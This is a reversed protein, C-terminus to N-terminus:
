EDDRRGRLEKRVLMSGIWLIYVTNLAAGAISFAIVTGKASLLCGGVLLVSLRCLMILVSFVFLKKQQRLIRAILVSPVNCFMPVLWIILWRAYEGAIGWEPGFVWAFVQPAWIFLILAPLSAAGFLAATVKVFLPLLRDGNNYIEGAKQFLVQRLAVLTLSMPAELLRLGFVYAGAVAIGFFHALLLVPLGQSLANLVNQTASYLPFERYEVALDAIRRWTLSRALSRRDVHFVQRALVVSAVGNAAVSSAILGNGGVGILGSVIQLVGAAGSRIVQSSATKRFAKKRVCWAQFSENVGSVLVGLPLFWLLWRAQPAKLVALLWQSFVCGLVLCGAATFLAAIGSAALLNAADEDRKPLMIAESYQLTTGAAIVALVSSFSGLSGYESPDFLRSIVPTLAFTIAQAVATSSMVTAM